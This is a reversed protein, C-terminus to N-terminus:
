KAFTVVSAGAVLMLVGFVKTLTVPDVPSGLLGFHSLVMGTIVQGAILLVFFPGAGIQPIVWAIGFVLAAGFAGATLLWLPVARLDQFVAQDWGTLGILIATIGGITWFIANGMRPNNLMSGVQANMGLHASLVVGLLLALLIFTIKM